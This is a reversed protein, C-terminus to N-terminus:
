GARSRLISVQMGNETITIGKKELEAVYYEVIHTLKETFQFLAPKVFGLLDDVSYKPSDGAGLGMKSINGSILWRNKREFVMGTGDVIPPQSHVWDNRYKITTKWEKSHYLEDLRKTIIHNPHTKILIKRVSTFRSGTRTQKLKKNDVDLIFVVAKALHEAASYLRLAADDSYFRAFFTANDEDRPNVKELYWVKHAMAELLAYRAECLTKSADQFCVTGIPFKSDPKFKISILDPALFGIRQRLLNISPLQQSALKYTEKDIFNPMYEKFGKYIL